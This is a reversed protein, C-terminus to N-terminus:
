TACVVVNNITTIEITAAFETVSYTLLTSEGTVIALVVYQRTTPNYTSDHVLGRSAQALHLIASM